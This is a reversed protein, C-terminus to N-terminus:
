SGSTRARATTGSSSPRASTRTSRTSTTSTSACGRRLCTSATRPRGCPCARSTPRSTPSRATRASARSPAGRASRRLSPTGVYNVGYADIRKFTFVDDILTGFAADVTAQPVGVEVGRSGHQSYTAPLLREDGPRTTTIGRAPDTLSRVPIGYSPLDIPGEFRETVGDAWNRAPAFRARNGFRKWSNSLGCGTWVCDYRVQIRAFASISDFPGWGEPAINWEPEVNLIFAWQSLYWDNVDFNDSLARLQLEAYGGITFMEDGPSVLELEEEEARGAGATSLVALAALVAAARKM